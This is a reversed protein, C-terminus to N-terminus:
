FFKKLNLNIEIDRLLFSSVYKRKRYYYDWFVYSDSTTHRQSHSHPFFKGSESVDRHRPKPYVAAFRQQNSGHWKWHLYWKNHAAEINNEKNRLKTWETREHCSNSKKNACLYKFVQWFAAKMLCTENNHQWWQVLKNWLRKLFIVLFM